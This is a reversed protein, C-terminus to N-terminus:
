TFFHKNYPVYLTQNWLNDKTNTKHILGFLKQLNIVRGEHILRNKFLWIKFPQALSILNCKLLPWHQQGIVFM